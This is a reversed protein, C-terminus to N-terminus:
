KLGDWESPKVDNLKKVKRLAKHSLEVVFENFVVQVCYKCDKNINTVVGILGCCYEDGQFWWKKNIVEDVSKAWVKTGVKCNKLKM